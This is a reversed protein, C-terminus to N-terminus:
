NGFRGSWYKRSTTSTRPLLTLLEEHQKQLRQVSEATGDNMSRRLDVLADNIQDDTM